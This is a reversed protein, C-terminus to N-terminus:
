MKLLVTERRQEALVQNGRPEYRSPAPILGVLLAAEGISLQNVPKRFYTESAAGVGYAGDGLYVSDLYDFLLQQKPVKRALQGALIAERIKRSFTRQQGTYALRVYQQTITSGGQLYGQGQIDRIIARVTARPNVGGEHFFNKDESAVLADKLIEPIDAPKVPVSQDFQQFQAIEQGNADYIISPRSVLNPKPNPLTAPLPLFILSGLITVGAVMPAGVVTVIAVTFWKV